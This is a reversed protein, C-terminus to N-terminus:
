DKDKSDAVPEEKTVIEPIPEVYNPNHLVVLTYNEDAAVAL